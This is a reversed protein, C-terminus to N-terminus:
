AHGAWIQQLRLIMVVVAVCGMVLVGPGWRTREALAWVTALPLVLLPGFLYAAFSARSFGRDTSIMNLVGIVAQALLGLELLAALGILTMTFPKGLKLPRNLAILLLAWVAGGLAVFLLTTALADIM